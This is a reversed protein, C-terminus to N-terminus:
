EAKIPRGYRKWWRNVHASIASRAAARKEQAEKETDHIVALLDLRILIAHVVRIPISNRSFAPKTPGAEGIARELANAVIVAPLHWTKPTKNQNREHPGLPYKVYPLAIALATSLQKVADHGARVEDSTLLSAWFTVLKPMAEHLTEAADMVARIDWYWEPLDDDAATQQPRRPPTAMRRVLDVLAKCAEDSLSSGYKKGLWQRMELVTIPSPETHADM